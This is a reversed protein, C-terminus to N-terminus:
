FKICVDLPSTTIGDEHVKRKTYYYTIGSRQQAYTLIKHDKQIFGRNTGTFSTKSQLVDKYIEAQLNNLNKSIGKASCKSQGSTEDWCVYTKSNLAIIGTGRFEEKFLGPTRSDFKTTARCCEPQVWKDGRVGSDIFAQNHHDCAQRPFWQGFNTFFEKRMAPKIIDFLPGSLGMYASDTDMEVYQFDSRDVFRDMCNYYFRLMQLKALQLISFGLVVPINMHLSKKQHVVECLDHQDYEDLSVFRDSAILGSITCPDSAYKVECHREKNTITKGYVSNVSLKAMNAHLSLSPDRDGQRRSDTAERVFSSYIPRQKYRYTQYVRSVDLGESLYWKLLESHLLIHSARLAGVLSKQSHINIQCEKVYDMMHSSIHEETITLHGFIPCMESFKDHIEEPVHIDCEVLGFFEGQRVAGVVQDQTSLPSWNPYWIDNFRSVFRGVSQDEKCMKKWECEWMVEINYGLEVVYQLKSRTHHLREQQEECDRRELCTHGHWYCGLFEYITKNTACFGDVKVGHRGIRVQGSNHIHQIDIGNRCSLYALWTHEHISWGSSAPRDSSALRGDVYKCVVPHGVPQPQAVCYAYLANADFGQVLGCVKADSGFWDERIKSVGAEHYRHFVISPGGVINKKCKDYLHSYESHINTVPISDSIHDILTRENGQLFDVWAGRSLVDRSKDCTNMLWNQAAGPLSVSSKLMDIGKSKYIDSQAQIAQLFPKVDSNNYWILLDRVTKMKRERWVRQCFAYDEDSIGKQKLSSYFADQPPLSNYKLKDLGDVWEYPFFGKPEDVGFAKLYGAYNSGPAIFNTIDVFRLNGSEFCAMSNLRKITFKIKKEDAEHAPDEDMLATILEGKMVNVDYKQGNFSVVPIVSLWRDFEQELGELRKRSEWHGKPSGVLEKVQEQQEKNERNDCMCKLQEIQLRYKGSMYGRARRAVELLYDVFRCVVEKSDGSSVFCKPSLFGPVNSCVSISMLVHTAEYVCQDSPPPLGSKDLYTEIDYTIRYPYFRDEPKIHVGINDLKDFVTKTKVHPEGSFVFPTSDVAACKHSKLSHNRTFQKKCTKCVFSKTYSSIDTILSFHNNALNLHITRSKKRGSSWVVESTADPKLSFVCVSIDFIDEVEWLDEIFVGQFQKAGVGELEPRHQKWCGYLGLVHHHKPTVNHVHRELTKNVSDWNYDVAMCRFLCLRDQWVKGNKKCKHLSLISKSLLIHSPLSGDVESDGGVRNVGHLKYIYFTVNTIKHLVWSSNERRFLGHQAYDLARFDDVFSNLDARSTLARATPYITANNSSSHYYRLRGTVQHRLVVGFSVNVKLSFQLGNWVRVLRDGPDELNEDGSGVLRCNLIDQYRRRYLSSRISSWNSAFVEREAPTDLAFPQDLPDDYEVDRVLVTRRRTRDRGPCVHEEMRRRSAFDRRCVACRARRRVRRGDHVEHVHRRLNQATLFSRECQDCEFRGGIADAM